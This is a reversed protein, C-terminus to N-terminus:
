YPEHVVRTRGNSLHWIMRSPFGDEAPRPVTFDIVNDQVRVKRVVRSPYFKPNRYPGRTVARDYIATISVVGDPIVRRVDSPGNNASSSIFAGSRRLLAAGGGGGGGGNGDRGSFAFLGDRPRIGGPHNEERSLRADERLTMRRLDNPKGELLELLRDHRRTDCM